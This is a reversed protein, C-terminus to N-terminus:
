GDEEQPDPSMEQAGLAAGLLHFPWYFLLVSKSVDGFRLFQLTSESGDVGVGSSCLQACGEVSVLGVMLPGSAVDASEGVLFM